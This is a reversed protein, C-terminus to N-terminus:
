RGLCNQGSNDTRTAVKNGLVDRTYSMGGYPKSQMEKISATKDITDGIPNDCTSKQEGAALATASFAMLAIVVFLAVKKM